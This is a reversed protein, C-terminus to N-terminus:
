PKRDEKKRGNLNWRKWQESSALVTVGKMVTTPEELCLDLMRCRSVGFAAALRTLSDYTAERIRVTRFRAPATAALADRATDRASPEDANQAIEQLARRYAALENESV